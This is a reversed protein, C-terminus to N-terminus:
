RGHSSGAQFNTHMSIDYSIAIYSIKLEQSEQSVSPLVGRLVICTVTNCLNRLKMKFTRACDLLAYCSPVSHVPQSYFLRNVTRMYLLSHKTVVYASSLHTSSEQTVKM